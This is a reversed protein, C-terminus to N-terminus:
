GVVEVRRAYGFLHHFLDVREVAFQNGGAGPLEGAANRRGGFRLRHPLLAVALHEDGVSRVGFGLLVHTPKPYQFGGIHILRECPRLLSGDGAIHGALHAFKKEIRSRLFCRFLRVRRSKPSGCSGGYERDMAPQCLLGMRLLFVICLFIPAIAILRNASSTTSPVTYRAIACSATVGYRLIAGISWYRM